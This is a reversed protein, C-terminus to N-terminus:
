TIPFHVRTAAAVEFGELAEETSRPEERFLFSTVLAPPPQPSTPVWSHVGKPTMAIM